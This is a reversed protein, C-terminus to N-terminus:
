CICRVPLEGHLVDPTARSTTSFNLLGLKQQVGDPGVCNLFDLRALQVHQDGCGDTKLASQLTRPFSQKRLYDGVTPRRIKRAKVGIGFAELVGGSGRMFDCFLKEAPDARKQRPPSQMCGREGHVNPGIAGGVASKVANVIM